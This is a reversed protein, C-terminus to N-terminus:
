QNLLSRVQEYNNIPNKNNNGNIDILEDETLLGALLSSAWTRTLLTATRIKLMYEPHTEWVTNRFYAKKADSLRLTESQVKGKITVSATVELDGETKKNVKWTVGGRFPSIKENNILSLLLHAKMSPEGGSFYIGRLAQLLSVEGELQRVFDLVFYLDEPQGRFEKPIFRSKSLREIDM